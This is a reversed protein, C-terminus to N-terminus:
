AELESWEAYLADIEATLRGRRQSLSALETHHRPEGLATDILGIETEISEIKRTLAEVRRKQRQQEKHDQKRAQYGGVDGGATAGRPGPGVPLFHDAQVGEVVTLTAPRSHSVLGVHSALSEILFRDHSVVVLAGPWDALARVLVDVTVADLHNTPEDLLLVEHPRVVFVALAVCAKEGGSLSKIPRLADDGHLGLAGLAARIRAPLVAPAMSLVYDLASTDAPLDQALDQTFLGIRVGKGVTRRGASLKLRGSLAGLLTSKGSGNPGLLALRQGRRIELDVETFLPEVVGASDPWGFRAKHLVLVEETGAEPAPLRLRPVEEVEELEIREIKDLRKQKSQAQSAKTAKAGFREVFRELKGIEANQEALSRQASLERAARETLWATLNGAYVQLKRNRLEGIVTVATDLLHRDHSVLLVTHPYRALFATLWSRSYLDLHNTPEDLLLLTPSSLLLRALAIRMQWGGSFSPCPRHWDSPLFGLGHLVEGIREDMVYGGRLRFAETATALAEIAGAVGAEVERELQVLRERERVLSVLGQSVEDWVSLTSGSVAQQPLYGVVADSRIVVRGTDLTSDDGGPLGARAACLRLLTSKGCGNRGILACKQGPHLTWSAHSLLM